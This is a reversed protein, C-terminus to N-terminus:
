PQLKSPRSMGAKPRHRAAAPSLIPRFRLTLLRRPNRRNFAPAFALCSHDIGDGTGDDLMTQRRDHPFHAFSHKASGIRLDEIGAAVKRQRDAVCAAAQDRLGIVDRNVDARQGPRRESDLLAELINLRAVDDQQVIGIIAAAMQGVEGGKHRDEGVALAQEPGDDAGMLAIDAAGGM